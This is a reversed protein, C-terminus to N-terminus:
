SPQLAESVMDTAIFILLKPKSLVTSFMGLPSFTCFDCILFLNCFFSVGASNDLLFVPMLKQGERMFLLLCKITKSCFMM